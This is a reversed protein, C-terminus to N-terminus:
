VFKRNAIRVDVSDSRHSAASQLWGPPLCRPVGTPHLEQAQVLTGHHCRTNVAHMEYLIYTCTRVAFGTRCRM